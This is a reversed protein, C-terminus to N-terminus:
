FIYEISVNKLPIENWHLGNRTKITGSSEGTGDDFCIDNIKIRTKKLFLSIKHKSYGNYDLYEEKFTGGIEDGDGALRRLTKQELRGKRYSYHHAGSLIMGFSMGKEGEKKPILRFLSHFRDSNIKLTYPRLEM